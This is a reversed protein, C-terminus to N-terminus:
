DEYKSFLPYIIGNCKPCVWEEILKKDEIHMKINCRPCMPKKDIANLM